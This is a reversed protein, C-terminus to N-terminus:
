SAVKAFRTELTTSVADGPPQRLVAYTNGGPVPGPHFTMERGGDVTPTARTMGLVGLALLLAYPKM